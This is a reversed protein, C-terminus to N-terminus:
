NQFGLNNESLLSCVRHPIGLNDGQLRCPARGRVAGREGRHHVGDSDAPCINYITMNQLM